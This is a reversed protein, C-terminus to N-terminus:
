LESRCMKYLRSYPNDSHLDYGELYKLIRDRNLQLTTHKELYKKNIEFSGCFAKAFANKRNDAMSKLPDYYSNGVFLSKGNDFIPACRYEKGNYILGLNNFHRDENLILADLTFIDALYSSVDVGAHTKLFDIMYGIADDYDMRSTLVAPDDGKINMHLRYFTIFYENDRLFSDSVCGPSDNIIIRNYCVYKAPDYDSLELIKSALEECVGEGGYRDVKYWKGEYCYKIQTGDSTGTDTILYQPNIEIKPINYPM